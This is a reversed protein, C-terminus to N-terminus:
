FFINAVKLIAEICPVLKRDIFDGVDGALGVSLLYSFQSTVPMATARATRDAFASHHSGANSALMM